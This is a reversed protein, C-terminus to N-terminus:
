KSLQGDLPSAVHEKSQKKRLVCVVAIGCQDLYALAVARTSARIALRSVRDGARVTFHHVTM